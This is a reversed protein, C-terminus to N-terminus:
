CNLSNGLFCRKILFDFLVIRDFPYIRMKMFEFLSNWWRIWVKISYPSSSNYKECRSRQRSSHDRSIFDKDNIWITIGDVFFYGESIPPLPVNSPVVPSVRHQAPIGVFTGRHSYTLFSRACRGGRGKNPRIQLPIDASLDIRTASVMRGYVCVYVCMLCTYPSHKVRDVTCTGRGRVSPRFPSVLFTRAFITKGDLYDLPAVIRALNRDVKRVTSNRIM